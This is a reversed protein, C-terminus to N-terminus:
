APTRLAPSASLSQGEASMEPSRAAARMGAAPRVAAGPDDQALPARHDPEPGLKWRGQAFWPRDASGSEHAGLNRESFSTEVAREASLTSTIHRALPIFNAAAHGWLRAPKAGVIM